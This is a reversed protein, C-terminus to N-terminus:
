ACLSKGYAEISSDFETWKRLENGEVKFSQVFVILVLSLCLACICVKNPFRCTRLCETVCRIFKSPCSLGM